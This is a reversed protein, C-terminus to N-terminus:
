AYSVKVNAKRQRRMAGGIAGFGFIMFAWTAPEPVAAGFKVDDLAFGEDIGDLARFEVSSFATDSIVGFFGDVPAAQIGNIVLISRPISDNVENFTAGFSSLASGFNLFISGGDTIRGSLRSTGNVDFGPGGPGVFNQTASNTNGIQTISIDGVVVPSATLQTVTGVSNFDELTTAGAAANFAAEDTFIVLAANASSALMSASLLTGLAMTRYMNIMKMEGAGM